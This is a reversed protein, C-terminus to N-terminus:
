SCPEGKQNAHTGALGLPQGAPALDSRIGVPSRMSTAPRNWGNIAVIALTLAVIEEPSFTQELKEYVADPWALSRASARLGHTHVVSGMSTPVSGVGRLATPRPHATM